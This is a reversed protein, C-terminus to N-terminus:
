GPTQVAELLELTLSQLLEEAIDEQRKFFHADEASDEALMSAVNQAMSQRYATLAWMTVTFDSPTGNTSLKLAIGPTIM